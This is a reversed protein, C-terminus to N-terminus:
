RSRAAALLEDLGGEFPPADIQGLGVEIPHKEGEWEFNFSNLGALTREAIRRGVEAPCYTLLVAFEEEAMRALLDTDRVHARLVATLYRVLTDGALSGAHDYVDRIGTLSISLYTM